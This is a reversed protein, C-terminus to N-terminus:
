HLSCDLAFTLEKAPLPPAPPSSLTRSERGTPFSIKDIEHGKPFTLNITPPTMNLTTSLTHLLSPSLSLFGSNLVGAARSQISWTM